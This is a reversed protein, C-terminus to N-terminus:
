RIVSRFLLSLTKRSNGDLNHVNNGVFYSCICRVEGDIYRVPSEYKDGAM